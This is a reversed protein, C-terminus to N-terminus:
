GGRCAGVRVVTTRGDATFAEGSANKGSGPSGRIQVFGLRRACGGAELERALLDRELNLDTAIRHTVRPKVVTLYVGVDESAAGVWLTRTSDVAWMRVHHRRRANAGQREFALDQVRDFLRQTSVPGHTDSKGLVVAGAAAVRRRLGGSSAVVWDARSFAQLLQDETGEVIVNLVDGPEGNGGRTRAPLSDLGLGPVAISDPLPAARRCPTGPPLALASTLRLTGEDGARIEVRAGRRVLSVVASLAGVPATIEGVVPTLAVVPAADRALMHGVSSQAARLQGASDAHHSPSWELEEVVATLPMWKGLGVSAAEFTLHLRGARRFFEGALSEDVIGLLRTYAPLVVCSGAVVDAMTQAEVTSGPRTTGSSIPTLFRVPIPTGPPLVLSDSRGYPASVASIAFAIVLHLPM